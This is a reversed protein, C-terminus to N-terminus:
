DDSHHVLKECRFSESLDDGIDNEAREISVISELSQGVIEGGQGIVRGLLVIEPSMERLLCVLVPGQVSVEVHLVDHVGPGELHTVGEDGDPPVIVVPRGAHGLLPEQNTLLLLDSRQREM